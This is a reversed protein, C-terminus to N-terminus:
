LSLFEANPLQSVKVFTRFGAMDFCKTTNIGNQLIWMVGSIFEGHTFVMISPESRERLRDLLAQARGLFGAFSEVGPGDVYHPDAREWYRKILPRRQERTTPEGVPLDLYTFEHVPWVEIPVEPFRDITPQATQRTRIFSSTVILSPAQEWEKALRVAQECGCDTIPILAPDDTAGGANALSEAHRILRVVMVLNEWCVPAHGLDLPLTEARKGPETARIRAGVPGGSEGAPHDCCLPPSTRRYKGYRHGLDAHILDGDECV